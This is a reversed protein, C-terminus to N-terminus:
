AWARPLPPRLQLPAPFNALRASRLRADWAPSHSIHTSRKWHRPKTQQNPRNNTRQRQKGSHTETRKPIVIRLILVATSSKKLSGAPRTRVSLRWHNPKSPAFGNPNFNSWQLVWQKKFNQLLLTLFGFDLGRFGLLVLGSLFIQARQCEIATSLGSSRGSTDSFSKCLGPTKSTRTTSYSDRPREKSPPVNTRVSRENQITKPWNTQSGPSSLFAFIIWELLRWYM